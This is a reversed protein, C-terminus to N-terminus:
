KRTGLMSEVSTGPSNKCHCVGTLQYTSQREELTTVTDVEEGKETDGEGENTEAVKLSTFTTEQRKDLVQIPSATLTM